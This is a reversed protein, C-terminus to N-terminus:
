ADTRRIDGDSYVLYAAFMDWGPEGPHRRQVEAVTGAGATELMTIAANAAERGNTGIERDSDNGDFIVRYQWRKSM